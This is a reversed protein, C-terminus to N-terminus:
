LAAFKSNGSEEVDKSGASEERERKKRDLEDGNKNQRRNGAVEVGHVAACLTRHNALISATPFRAECGGKNKKIECVHGYGIADKESELLDIGVPLAKFYLRRNEFEYGADCHMKDGRFIVADGAGLNLVIQKGKIRSWEMVLKSMGDLCIIGAFRPGTNNEEVDTHM